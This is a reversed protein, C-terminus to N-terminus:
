ETSSMECAILQGDATSIYFVVHKDCCLARTTIRHGFMHTGTLSNTVSDFEYFSGSTSAFYVRYGVAIPSSFLKADAVFRSVLSGDTANVVYLCKDTSCIFVSGSLVLPESYVLGGTDVRWALAGTESNWAYVSGDFSGAIVLRRDQDYSPRSKIAGNTQFSWQVRGTTGELCYFMGNNCGFVVSSQWDLFAPSGHVFDDVQFEWRREGTQSNLAILAGHSGPMAYELGIYLSELRPVLCPSSGIWDAEAFQWRLRGTYKDLAYCVGDYAGFYVCHEDLAPSSRIGKRGCDGASFTWDRRGSRPDLAYFRGSDTGFYIHDDDMAPISKPVIDPQVDDNPNFRWVERLMNSRVPHRAAPPAKRLGLEELKVLSKLNIGRRLLRDGAAATGFDVLAVVHTLTRNIHALALSARDISDGSNLIDDLLFIPLDNLEGEIQRRRGSVKREKRIIVGNLAYGKTLAHGQVALMLPVGTLELSCLQFPYFQELYEWFLAAISSSSTPNLLAIRTDLLWKLPKGTQSVLTEVEGRIISHERLSLIVNERLATSNSSSNLNM